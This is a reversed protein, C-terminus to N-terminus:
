KTKYIKNKGSETAASGSEIWSDVEHKRLKWLRGMKHAPMKGRSIWKYLTDPKIGLYDAMEKVSYWRGSDM